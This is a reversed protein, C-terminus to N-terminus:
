RDSAPAQENGFIMDDIDVPPIPKGIDKRM